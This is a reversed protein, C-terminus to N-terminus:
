ETSDNEEQSDSLVYLAQEIKVIAVNENELKTDQSGADQNDEVSNQVKVESLDTTEDSTYVNELLGPTTSELPSETRNTATAETPLITTDDDVFKQSSRGSDDDERSRVTSTDTSQEVSNPSTVTSTAESNVDTNHTLGSESSSVYYDGTGYIDHFNMEYSGSSYMASEVEKVFVSEGSTRQDYDISKDETSFSEPYIKDFKNSQKAGSKNANYNWSESEDSGHLRSDGAVALNEQPIVDSNSADTNEWKSYKENQQSIPNKQFLMETKHINYNAETTGHEGSTVDMKESAIDTGNGETIQHENFVENALTQSDNKDSPNDVFIETSELSNPTTLTNETTSIAKTVDTEESQDAKERSESEYSYRSEEHSYNVTSILEEGKDGNVETQSENAELHAVETNTETTLQSTKLWEEPLKDSAESINATTNSKFAIVTALIKESSQTADTTSYTIREVEESSATNGVSETFTESIHETHSIGGDSTHPVAKSKEMGKSDSIANETTIDQLEESSTAETHETTQVFEKPNLPHEGELIDPTTSEGIPSTFEENQAKTPDDHMLFSAVSLHIKTTYATGDQTVTSESTETTETPQFESRAASTPSTTFPTPSSEDTNMNESEENSNQFTRNDAEKTNQGDASSSNTTNSYESNINLESEVGIVPNIEIKKIDYDIQMKNESDPLVIDMHPAEMDNQFSIVPITDMPEHEVSQTHRDPIITTSNNQFSDTETDDEGYKGEDMKSEINNGEGTSETVTGETNVTTEYQPSATGSGGEEEDESKSTTIEHRETEQSAEYKISEASTKKVEGIYWVAGGDKVMGNDDSPYILTKKADASNAEEDMSGSNNAEESGLVHPNDTTSTEDSWTGAIENEMKGSSSGKKGEETSHLPLSNSMDNSTNETYVDTNEGKPEEKDDEERESTEGTNTGPRYVETNDQQPWEKDSEESNNAEGTGISETNAETNDQQLGERDNEESKSTERSSTNETHIETNDKQLEERDGEERKSTEDSGTNETHVGINEQQLGAKDNEEGKSAGVTSASETYVETNDKPLEEQVSEEETNTKASSPKLSTDEDYNNSTNTGPMPSDSKEGLLEIWKSSDVVNDQINEQLANPTNAIDAEYDVSSSKTSESLTEPTTYFMM